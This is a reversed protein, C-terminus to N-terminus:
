GRVAREYDALPFQPQQCLSTTMRGLEPGALLVYERGPQFTVGCTPSQVHHAIRWDRRAQGKLTRSVVFRTVVQGPDAAGRESRTWEARAVVMLQAQELQTGADRHQVCKCALAAGASAALILAAPVALPRVSM